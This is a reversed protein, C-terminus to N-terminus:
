RRGAANDRRWAKWLRNLMGLRERERQRLTEIEVAIRNQTAVALDREATIQGRLIAM